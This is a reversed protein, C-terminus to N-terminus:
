TWPESPTFSYKCPPFLLQKKNEQAPLSPPNINPVKKFTNNFLIKHEKGCAEHELGIGGWNRFNKVDLDYNTSAFPIHLIVAHGLIEVLM